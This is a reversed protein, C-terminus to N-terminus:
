KGHVGMRYQILEPVIASWAPDVITLQHEDHAREVRARLDDDVLWPFALVDVEVKIALPQLGEIRRIRRLVFYRGVDEILGSWQGDELDMAVGWAVIGLETWGGTALEGYAGEPKAPGVFQGSELRAFAEEAQKRAEDHEKPAMLRSLVRPLVVNTLALRRLQPASAAPEIREVYVSAADVEEARIPVDDVALVTGAPWARAQAGNADGCAALSVVALLGVAAVDTFGRM